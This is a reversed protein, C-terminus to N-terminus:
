AGPLQGHDHEHAEVEDLEQDSAIELRADGAGRERDRREQHQERYEEPGEEPADRACEDAHGDHDCGQGQALLPLGRAPDCRQQRPALSALVHCTAHVNTPPRHYAQTRLTRVRPSCAPTLTRRVGVPYWGISESGNAVGPAAPPKRTTGCGTDAGSVRAAIKRTTVTLGPASLRAIRRDNQPSREASNRATSNRSMSGPRDQTMPMPDSAHSRRNPGGRGASSCGNRSTRAPSRWATAVGPSRKNWMRALRMSRHKSSAVCIMARIPSATEGTSATSPM